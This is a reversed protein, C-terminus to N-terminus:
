KCEKCVRGGWPTVSTHIKDHGQKCVVLKTRYRWSKRRENESRTVPELHRPNCCARNRCLHDLEMDGFPGVEAEYVAQHARRRTSGRFSLGYGDKDLKGTWIWCGYVADVEIPWEAKV